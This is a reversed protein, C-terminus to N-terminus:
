KGVDAIGNEKEKGKTRTMTEAQAAHQDTPAAHDIRIERTLYQPGPVLDAEDVTSSPSSKQGKRKRERDNKRKASPERRTSRHTSRSTQPSRLVQSL